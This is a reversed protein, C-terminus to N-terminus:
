IKFKPYGALTSLTANAGVVRGTQNGQSSRVTGTNMM